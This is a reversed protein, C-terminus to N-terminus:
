GNGLPTALIRVGFKSRGRAIANYIDAEHAPVLVTARHVVSEPHAAGRPRLIVGGHDELNRIMVDFARSAQAKANARNPDSLNGEILLAMKTYNM